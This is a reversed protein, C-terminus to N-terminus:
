SRLSGLVGHRLPHSSSQRDKRVMLCSSHYCSNSFYLMLTGLYTPTITSLRYRKIRLLLSFATLSTKIITYLCLTFHSLSSHSPCSREVPNSPACVAADEECIRAVGVDMSGCIPPVAKGAELSPPGVVVSM